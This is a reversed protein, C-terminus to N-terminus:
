THEECVVERQDFASFKMLFWRRDSYHDTCGGINEGFGNVLDTVEKPGYALM